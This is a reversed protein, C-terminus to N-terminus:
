DSEHLVADEQGSEIEQKRRRVFDNLNEVVGQDILPPSYEKLLSKWVKNARQSAVVAGDDQWTEFNRWDSLLPTYFIDEYREMTHASGFFHGGPPVDAIADVALTEKNVTIPELSLAM